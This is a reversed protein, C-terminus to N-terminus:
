NEGIDWVLNWETRFDLLNWLSIKKASRSAASDAESIRHFWSGRGLLSESPVSILFVEM